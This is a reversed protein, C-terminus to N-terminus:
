GIGFVTTLFYNAPIEDTSGREFIFETQKTGFNVTMDMLENTSVKRVQIIFPKSTEPNLDGIKSTMTEQNIAFKKCGSPIVPNQFSGARINTLYELIALTGGSTPFYFHSGCVMMRRSPLNLKLCGITTQVTNAITFGSTGSVEVGNSFSAKGRFTTDSLIEM